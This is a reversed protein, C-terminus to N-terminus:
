YHMKKKIRTYTGDHLFPLSVLPIYVHIGEAMVLFYYEYLSFGLCIYIMM